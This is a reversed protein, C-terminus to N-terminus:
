TVCLAAALMAQLPSSSKLMEVEPMVLPDQDIGSRKLPFTFLQSPISVFQISNLVNLSGHPGCSPEAEDLTTWAHSRFFAASWWALSGTRILWHFPKFAQLVSKGRLNEVNKKIIKKEM